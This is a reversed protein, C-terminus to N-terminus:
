LQKFRENRIRFRIKISTKYAAMRNLGPKQRQTCMYVYFSCSHVQCSFQHGYLSKFRLAANVVVTEFGEGLALQFPSSFKYCWATLVVMQWRRCSVHWVDSTMTCYPGYSSNQIYTYVQSWTVRQGNHVCPSIHVRPSDWTSRGDVSFWTVHNLVLGTKFCLIDFSQM